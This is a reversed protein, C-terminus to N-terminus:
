ARAATRRLSPQREAIWSAMRRNTAALVARAAAEPVSGRVFTSGLLHEIVGDQFTVYATVIERNGITSLLTGSLRLPTTGTFLSNLAQITARAAALAADNGVPMRAAYSQQGNLLEVEIFIGDPQHIAEVRGLTLREAALSDDVQVLSIRRYDIRYDYEVMLLTEIDRVIKKPSRRPSALVHIEDLDYALSRVIRVNRVGPITRLAEEISLTDPLSVNPNPIPKAM